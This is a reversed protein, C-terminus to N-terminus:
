KKKKGKNVDGKEDSLKRLQLRFVEESRVRGSNQLHSLRGGRIRRRGKKKERCTKRAEERIMGGQGKSGEQLM